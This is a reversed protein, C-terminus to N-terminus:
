ADSDGLSELQDAIDSLKDKSWSTMGGKKIVHRLQENLSAITVPKKHTFTDPDDYVSICLKEDFFQIEWETGKYIIKKVKYASSGYYLMDGVHIVEGDKDRPLEVMNSTDCLDLIVRLLEHADKSFPINLKTASCTVAKYFDDYSSKDINRLRAAIAAREQKTLM